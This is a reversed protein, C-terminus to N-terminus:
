IAMRFGSIKSSKLIYNKRIKMCRVYNRNAYFLSAPVPNAVLVESTLERNWNRMSRPDNRTAWAVLVKYLLPSSISVVPPSSARVQGIPVVGRM